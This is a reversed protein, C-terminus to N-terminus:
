PFLLEAQAVSEPKGVDIFRDGSHDFGMIKHSGALNLYVDVLSFKGKQGILSFIEPSFIVVTSYAKPKLQTKATEPTYITGPPFRYQATSLNVWGQLRNDEDFLFNRTSSRDTIGFSVLAGEREHFGKLAHLDLETLVDANITFFSEGRLLEAAKLLGGGTELVEQTEDSILVKSGWGGNDQIAAILQDAFHHVNVVVEYVGYSQLYEINRQLLSKGNVMALAKPHQDTWPKFRTGLGAAFIMAKM